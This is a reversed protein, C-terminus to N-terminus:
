FRHVLAQVFLPVQHAGVLGAPVQGDALCQLTPAPGDQVQASLHEPRSRRRSIRGGTGVARGPATPCPALAPWRSPRNPRNKEGPGEVSVRPPPWARSQGCPAAGNRFDALDALPGGGGPLPGTSLLRAEAREKRGSIPFPTRAM